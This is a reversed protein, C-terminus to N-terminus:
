FTQNLLNKAVYSCCTSYFFIIVPRLSNLPKGTDHTCAVNHESGVTWTESMLFPPSANFSNASCTEISSSNWLLRNKLDQSRGSLGLSSHGRCTTGCALTLAVPSSGSPGGSAVSVWLNAKIALASWWGLTDSLSQSNCAKFYPRILQTM